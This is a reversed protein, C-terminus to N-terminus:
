SDLVENFLNSNTFKWKNQAAMVTVFKQVDKLLKVQNELIPVISLLEAFRSAGHITGYRHRCYRLLCYGYLRREKDLFSQGKTGLSCVAPNCLVIAKLLMYEPRDLKNRFMAIFTKAFISAINGSEKKEGIRVGSPFRPCDSNLSNISFFADHLTSCAVIVHRALRIKDNMTINGYFDFTKSYEVSALFSCHAYIGNHHISSRKEMNPIDSNCHVMNSNLIVELTRLDTLVYAHLDKLTKVQNELIPVISLLEAYRTPGNLAGHQLCCYRLLCFGYQRREEELLHQARKSLSCVAPNCLVIAKLLMYEVRDLKNRLMALFTREFVDMKKSGDGNMGIRKGNPFTLCDSKMNNISFFADHLTSCAVIVHRALRLKDGISIKEYFGFTKSYEVSALFSCHTYLVGDPFGEESTSKSLNPINSNHHIMNSKLIDELNRFDCYGDPLGTDHIKSSVSEVSSLKCIAQNVMEDPFFLKSTSPTSVHEVGNKEELAKMVEAILLKADVSMENQIATPNMGASVCANFRCSRCSLRTSDIPYKTDFCENGRLCNYRSGNIIARRFFSKCGNCSPVLLDPLDEINDM